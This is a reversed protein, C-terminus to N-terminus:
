EVPKRDGVAPIPVLMRVHRQYASYTEGHYALLDRKELQLAVPARRM